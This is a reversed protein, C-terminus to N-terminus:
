VSLLSFFLFHTDGYYQMFDLRLNDAILRVETLRGPFWRSIKATHEHKLTVKMGPHVVPSIGVRSQKGHKSPTASQDFQRVIDAFSQLIMKRAFVCAQGFGSHFSLPNTNVVSIPVGIEGLFKTLCKLVLSFCAPSGSIRKWSRLCVVALKSKSFFTCGLITESSKPCEVIVKVRFV